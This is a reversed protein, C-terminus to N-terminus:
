DFTLPWTKLALKALTAQRDKIQEEDWTPYSVIQKTLEYQSKAYLASKEEFAANAALVNEDSKMLAMNGLYNQLARAKDDDVTWNAGPTLPLVHELNVQSPEENEVFEPNKEGRNARELARLYYRALHPRSVRASAFAGEFEVDNPVYKAMADRLERAKTIEGLGVERARLSYQTDLLGGRGGYVLFRVSWSVFLKFAKAAEIPEFRRAVAFLLPRIQEVQLHKAITDVHDRISPPYAEWKANSGSWLAIYDKSSAAADSLFQMVKASSTTEQKVKDILEREKTPGHTTVWLHRVFLVSLDADDEGLSELTATMTNWFGHAENLRKAEARSLFFNKLLDAQGARLGRDNLTEFIRFAGSEDQATVVIVEASQELFTVWRLLHDIRSADPLTKLLDAVFETAMGSAKQLRRNSPRSAPPAPNTSLEALTPLIARAFFENDELNLTLRSLREETDRDITRIFESDVSSASGARGLEILKDRIRCLLITSTALRQQGDAISPPGGSSSSVLVVAGLFYEDGDKAIAGNLDEFLARVHREEWAYARQNPPVALRGERLLRGIGMSDFKFKNAAM